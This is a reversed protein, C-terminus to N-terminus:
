KKLSFFISFHLRRNEDVLTRLEKRMEPSFNGWMIERTTGRSTSCPRSDVTSHESHSGGSERSVSSMRNGPVDQVSLM